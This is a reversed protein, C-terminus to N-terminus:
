RSPRSPVCLRAGARLGVCAYFVAVSCVSSGSIGSFNRDAASKAIAVTLAGSQARMKDRHGRHGAVSIGVRLQRIAPAGEDLRYWRVEPVGAQVTVVTENAGYVPEVPARGCGAVVGAGALVGLALVLTRM